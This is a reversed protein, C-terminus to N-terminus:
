AQSKMFETPTMGTAKKFARYFSAKSSFGAEQGLGVISYKKSEPEQSKEQFAAVRYQNILDNFNTHLSDNIMQSVSNIPWGMHGALAALTLKPNKYLKEKELTELLQNKKDTIETTAFKFKIAKDMYTGVAKAYKTLYLYGLLYIWLSKIAGIPKYLWESNDDLQNIFILGIPIAIMLFGIILSWSVILISVWRRVQKFERLVLRTDKSEWYIFYSYIALQIIGIAAGVLAVAQIRPINDYAWEMNAGIYLFSLTFFLVDLLLSPVFHLLDKWQFSRVPDKIHLLHLYALPGYALSLNLPFPFKANFAHISSELVSQLLASSFLFILIGLYLNPQRRPKLFVILFALIAGQFVALLFYFNSSDLSTDIM